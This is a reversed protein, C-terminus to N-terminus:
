SEIKRMVIGYGLLALGVFGPFAGLGIMIQIGEAADEPDTETASISWGLTVCALAVAIWIVGWKIDAHKSGRPAGMTKILEPSLEVGKDLAARVTELFAARNRAGHAQVLWVVLVVMTFAAVPILIGENM